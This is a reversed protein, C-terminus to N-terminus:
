TAGQGDVRVARLVHDGETVPGHLDVVGVEEFRAAAAAEVLESAEHHHFGHQTIGGFSRLKGPGSFGVSLLGGPRLVRHLESFARGLDPWFYVTNTSAVVDFTADPFPLSEVGGLELRLESGPLRARRKQMWAVSVESPDVGALVRVGRRYALELLIGGGFGVDLLACGPPFDIGELTAEVLARNGRNLIRTMVTRGFWGSPRALQRAVASAVPYLLRLLAASRM